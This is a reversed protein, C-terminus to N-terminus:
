RVGIREVRGSFKVEPMPYYGVTGLLIPNDSFAPFLGALSSNLKGSADRAWLCVSHNGGRSQAAAGLAFAPRPLQFGLFATPASLRWLPRAECPLGVPLAASSCEEPTRVIAICLGDMGLKSRRWAAKPM